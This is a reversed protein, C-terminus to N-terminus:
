NNELNITKENLGLVNKLDYEFQVWTTGNMKQDFSEWTYSSVKENFDLWSITVRISNYIHYLADQISMDLGCTPCVVNMNADKIQKQLENVRNDLKANEALISDIIKNINETTESVKKSFKAIEEDTYSEASKLCDEIANNLTDVQALLEEKLVKVQKDTYANTEIALNSVKEQCESVMGTLHYLVEIDSMKETITIPLDGTLKYGNQLLRMADFFGNDM